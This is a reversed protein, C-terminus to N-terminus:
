TLLDAMFPPIPRNKYSMGAGKDLLWQKHKQRYYMKYKEPVSLNRIEISPPGAFVFNERNKPINEPSWAWFHSKIKMASHEECGLSYRIEQLEQMLHALWAANSISQKVWLTCPHNEYAPKYLYPRCEPYWKWMATSLMQASGLIMKHLHQDCHYSAAIKPDPDLVFINM